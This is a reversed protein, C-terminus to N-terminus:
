STGKNENKKLKKNFLNPSYGFENRSLNEFVFIPIVNSLIFNFKHNGCLTQLTSHIFHSSYLIINQHGSFLQGIMCTVDYMM